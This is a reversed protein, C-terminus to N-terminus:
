KLLAQDSTLIAENSEFPIAIHTYTPDAGCNFDQLEEESLRDGYRELFVGPDRHLLGELHDIIDKPQLSKLHRTRLFSESLPLSEETSIRELALKLMQALKPFPAAPLLKEKVVFTKAHM